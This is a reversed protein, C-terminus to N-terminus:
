KGYAEGWSRGAPSAEACIPVGRWEFSLADVVARTVDAADAEPVSLVIEDHVQARLMPLVEDPLRLLGEMMLDRACGQGMLAPGQTWARSPDPRMRRGFGNDLLEGSEAQARIEDRWEVLRPFRERMSRDFESVLDYPIGTAAIAKIGRGYNWGHGIAKADERRGADGFLAKAIETHPDGTSLADIYAPDGSLGALARMDIQALDVAVIVHGPDPLFVEREHVREGRKGMVTLGPSTLSWRGAAQAMSVNPHVRDGVLHDAVTKYVTRTAVVGAVLRTLDAVEPVTAHHRKWLQRMAEASIAIDGTKGTTPYEPVGLRELAAVIAAKGAKTALPAACPQRKADLLPVGYRDALEGLAADKRREGERIREDLLKTDVRFGNLSIQAAVAAVRHERVLYPDDGLEGSLKGYLQASLTVDGTLYARYDPDELPIRDLGGHQKALAKLDGTKGGVGYREGLRDLDYRREHDIGTERAMPPDAQRAALLTDFVAGRQVLEHLDLGHWRALAPLDFGLVNHGVVREAQQIRRVLEDADATIEVRGDGNAYGVLRVFGLGYSHLRAADATELDAILTGTPLLPPKPASEGARSGAGGEQDVEKERAHPSPPQFSGRRGVSGGGTDDAGGAELDEPKDATINLGRAKTINNRVEVVGDVCTLRDIIKREGMPKGGQSEAWLNFKRALERKTTTQDPPVYSGPTVSATVPTASASTGAGSASTGAGSASTGAGSASTGVHIRCRDAVWMRVRDSRAEFDAQVEPVTEAYRGGRAAMRQWGLVLRALIGPLEGLMAVEIAPDEDGAFSVEFRFPKIRELYARSSEGVTPLENGSFAFLARNVYTFLRGHKRDAQVLDEGTMMKFTSLDDVHSSPIDAAANLIKGYIQAAMFRNTSLQQLTVATALKPGVLARLLRLFTSKGSRSPGYLFLAKPPTRSPDLMMSAAEELDDIQGPIVQGLWREYTPRPADLGAWEVPLQVASLYDPSHPLLEGTRLDLMGNRLNVLPLEACDPLMRDDLYLLGVAFEEATARHAPRFADGLLEAVTGSFATGDLVYAGDRYMAIKHEVTLAAPAQALVDMTLQRALLGSDGFYGGSARKPPPKTAAVKPDAKGILRKLKAARRDPSTAALLDDLGAKGSAPLRVFGVKTAGESTLAEALKTGAAYVAPNTAADADLCVVVEKGDVVALDPIPMGGHSWGWCGAIGYVAFGQPAYAAAVISQKTGETILVRVADPDPRVPSLVPRAGAPFLYKRPEGDADVPPTDPRLQPCKTAGDPSAWPFVIGPLCEAALGSRLEVPLQDVTTATYVGLREALAVDVGHQELYAAHGPSLRPSVDVM